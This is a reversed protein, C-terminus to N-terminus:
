KRLLTSRQEGTAHELARELMLRRVLVNPFVRDTTMLRRTLPSVLRTKLAAEICERDYTLGDAAVCPDRMVGLGIPCVFDHDEAADLIDCVLTQHAVDLVHHEYPAGLGAEADADADADTDAAADASREPADVGDDHAPGSARAVATEYFARGTRVNVELNRLVERLAEEADRAHHLADGLGRVDLLNQLEGVSTMSRRWSDVSAYLRGDEVRRSPGFEWSEGEAEDRDEQEAQADEDDEGGEEVFEGDSDSDESISGSGHESRPLALQAAAAEAEARYEARYEAVAEALRSTDGTSM